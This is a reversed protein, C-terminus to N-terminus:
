TLREKKLMVHIQDKLNLRKKKLSTLYDDPEPQIELEINRIEHDIEHYEKSLKKFHNDSIKLNHISEKYEPFEHALDHKELSM